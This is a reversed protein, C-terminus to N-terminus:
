QVVPPSLNTLYACVAFIESANAALTIPLTGQLIHYNKIHGIAREVHIRVEAIRRTETVERASLQPTQDMLLPINITVGLTALVDHIDFGRDAMVNDGPQLLKITGSRKTLLRDSVCGGWLQSVFTM